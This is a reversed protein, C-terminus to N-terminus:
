KLTWDTLVMSIIIDKWLEFSSLEAPIPLVSTSIWKDQGVIFMMAKYNLTKKFPNKIKLMLSESVREKVEQKLEIEITKMPNLNEKVVKM